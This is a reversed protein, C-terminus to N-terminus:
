AQSFSFIANGIDSRFQDGMLTYSLNDAWLKGLGTVALNDGDSAILGKDELDALRGAFRHLVEDGIMSKKMRLGLPFLALNRQSIWQSDVQKLLFLPLPSATRSNSLYSKVRPVNYFRNRYVYNGIRGIANPGMALYLLNDSFESKEYGIEKITSIRRGPKVFDEFTEQRYGQADLYAITTEIMQLVTTEGPLVAKGRKCAAHLRSHLPNFCYIDLCAPNFGVAEELDRRWVALDQGPLGYMLDFNIDFGMHRLEGAMQYLTEVPTTLACIKRVSKDFSQVGFSIRSCGLEKFLAIKEPTYAKTSIEVQITADLRLRFNTKIATLISVLGEDSLTNPTGGGLHLGFFEVARVLPKEAYYAIEEMLRHLYQKEEPPDYPVRDYTCYTCLTKCFPVHVYLFGATKKDAQTDLESSFGAWTEPRLADRVSSIAPMPFSIKRDFPRKRSLELM